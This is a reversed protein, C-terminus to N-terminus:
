AGLCEAQEAQLPFQAEAQETGAEVTIGENVSHSDHEGPM